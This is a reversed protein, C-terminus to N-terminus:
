EIFENYYVDTYNCLGVTQQDEAKRAMLAVMLTVGSM